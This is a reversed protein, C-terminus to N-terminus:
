ILANYFLKISPKVTQRNSPKVSVIKAGEKKESRVKLHLISICGM